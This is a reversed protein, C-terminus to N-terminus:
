QDEEGVRRVRMRRFMEAQEIADDLANHTHPSKGRFEPPIKSSKTDEWSSGSLGMYFSKIDIGGIGFPNTKLYEQFYYNVFAWDFMGNFGVFVPKGGETTATIWDGFATMAKIPTKGSKQFQELTRGVVEMAAPVSNANIPQIETYFTCDPEDIRVAGIALLSYNPPLPGAAEVDVSIYIENM